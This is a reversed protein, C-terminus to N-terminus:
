VPGRVDRQVNAFHLRADAVSRPDTTLIAVERSYGVTPGPISAAGLLLTQADVIVMRTHVYPSVAVDVGRRRLDALARHYAPDDPQPARTILRIAVAPPVAVLDNLLTDMGGRWPSLVLIEQKAGRIMGQVASGLDRDAVLRVLDSAAPAPKVYTVPPPAAAAPAKPTEWSLGTALSPAQPTPAPAAVPQGSLIGRIEAALGRAADAGALPLKASLGQLSEGWTWLQHRSLAVKGDPGAKQAAGEMERLVEDVSKQGRFGAVRSAWSALTEAPLNFTNPAAM